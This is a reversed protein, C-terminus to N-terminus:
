ITIIKESYNYNNSLIVMMTLSDNKLIRPLSIYTGIKMYFM